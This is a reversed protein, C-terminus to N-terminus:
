CAMFPAGAVPHCANRVVVDGVDNGCRKYHLHPVASLMRNYRLAPLTRLVASPLRSRARLSAADTGLAGIEGAAASQIRFRGDWVAGAVMPIPRQLAAAERTLLWGEGARGAPQVQVGARTGTKPGGPATVPYRRGSVTRLLAGFAPSGLEGPLLTAYGEPYLCARGALTAAAETEVSCRRNGAQAAVALLAARDPGIEQRLQARTSSPDSNSPDDVPILGATEVLARLAEPAVALLPRLLRLDDTEVLAAMGALGVPGSGRRQRMLVTEAQDGAHHGLLLDVLGAKRCAETLAAYRAARARAALAPGPQLGHLTLVMAPMGRATLASSAGAAEAASGPRLGHDVIFAHPSGWGQALIALALSDPGGSVAVAVRREDDWPGLRAM